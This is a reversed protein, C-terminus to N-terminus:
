SLWPSPSAFANKREEIDPSSVEERYNKQLNSNIKVQSLTAGRKKQLASGPREGTNNLNHM